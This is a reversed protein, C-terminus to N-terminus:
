FENSVRIPLIGTVAYKKLEDPTWNAFNLIEVKIPRYKGNLKYAMDLGAKMAKYDMYEKKTELKGNRFIRVKVKANILQKHRKMLLTDPLYQNMLENWNKSRTVHSPNKATKASYGCEIMARSVSKGEFIVKKFTEKQKTTPQTRYIM